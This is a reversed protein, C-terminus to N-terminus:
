NIRDCLFNKITWRARIVSSTPRPVRGVVCKTAGIRRTSQRNICKHACIIIIKISQWKAHADGICLLYPRCYHAISLAQSEIWKAAFLNRGACKIKLANNDSMTFADSRLCSGQLRIQRFPRVITDALVSMRDDVWFILNVEWALPSTSYSSRLFITIIM